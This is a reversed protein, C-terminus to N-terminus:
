TMLGDLPWSMRLLPQPTLYGIVAEFSARVANFFAYSLPTILYHIKTPVISSMFSESIRIMPLSSVKSLFVTGTLGDASLEFSSETSLFFLKSLSSPRYLLGLSPHLMRLNSM